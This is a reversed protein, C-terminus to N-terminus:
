DMSDPNRDRIGLDSALEPNLGVIVMGATVNTRCALTPKPVGSETSLQVQCSTCEGNWCYRGSSLAEPWHFQLGRLITNNEPVDVQLGCVTIPVTKQYNRFLGERWSSEDV